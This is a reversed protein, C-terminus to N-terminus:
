MLTCSEPFDSGSKLKKRQPSQSEQNKRKRNIPSAVENNHFEQYTSVNYPGITTVQSTPPESFIVYASTDDIWKVRVKGYQSFHKLLDNTVTEKPFSVHFVNVRNPATETLNLCYKIYLGDSDTINFNNDSGVMCLKNLYPQLETHLSPVFLTDLGKKISGKNKEEILKCSMRLFSYGTIYADYGAEHLFEESKYRDFKKGFEIKPQEFSSQNVTKFCEELSTNLSFLVKLEKCRTTLFKTDIIKPFM